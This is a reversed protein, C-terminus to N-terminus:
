WLDSIVMEGGEVFQQYTEGQSIDAQQQDEEQVGTHGHQIDAEWTPVDYM